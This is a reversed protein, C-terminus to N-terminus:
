TRVLHSFTSYTSPDGEVLSSTDEGADLHQRASDAARLWYKALIRTDRTIPLQLELANETTPLNARAVIDRASSDRGKNRVPFLWRRSSNLLAWACRTIM